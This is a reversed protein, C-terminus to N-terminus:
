RRADREAKAAVREAAIRIAAQEFTEGPRFRPFANFTYYPQYPGDPPTRPQRAFVESIAGRDPSHALVLGRVPRFHEDFELVKMLVWESEYLAIAEDFGREEPEIAAAPPLDNPPVRTTAM